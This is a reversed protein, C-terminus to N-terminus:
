QQSLAARIVWCDHRITRQWCSYALMVCTANQVSQLCHLLGDSIDYLLSNCYDLRCSIFAQVLTKYANASLSGFTASAHSCVVPRLKRLQNFLVNNDFLDPEIFSRV